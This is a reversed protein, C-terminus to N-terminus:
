FPGRVLIAVVTLSTVPGRPCPGEAFVESEQLNSGPGISEVM